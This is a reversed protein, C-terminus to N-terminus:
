SQLTAPSYGFKKRFATSFNNYHRYGLEDSVDTLDTKGQQLKVRAYNMKHEDVYKMVSHSFLQKFGHKLKFSNIYFKRTLQQLSGVELFHQDLWSKIENLLDIDARSLRDLTDGTKEGTFSALQHILLNLIVNDKYSAGLAGSYPCNLYDHICQYIAPKIVKPSDLTVFPDKRKCFDILPNNEDFDQLQRLLLDPFVKVCFYEEETNKKICTNFRFAPLYNLSHMRSSVNVNTNTVFTSTGRLQFYMMIFPTSRGAEFHLDRSVNRFSGTLVIHWKQVASNVRILGEKDDEIKLMGSQGNSYITNVTHIIEDLNTKANM